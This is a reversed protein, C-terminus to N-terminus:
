LLRLRLDWSLFSILMSLNEVEVRIKLSPTPYKTVHNISHVTYQSDHALVDRYIARSKYGRKARFIMTVTKLLEKEESLNRLIYPM